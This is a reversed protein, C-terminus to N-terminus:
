PPPARRLGKVLQDEEFDFSARDPFMKRLEANRPGLDHVVLVPVSEPDAYNFVESVHQAVRPSYQIFVIARQSPLTRLQAAFARDFAARVRHDAKWKAVVPVSFAAVVLTTVALATRAAADTAALRRAVAGAGIAALVSAVPVAEMYYITWPAWHAYPLHAALLILGSLAGFRVAGGCAFLGVLALAALPLREVQFVAIVVQVVRDWATRPLAALSQQKRASLFYEYTSRLAPSLPRRPPSTDPTFGMKDFPLYDLRYKEIPSVRWDGTTKASWLPLIALVGIGIAMAGALDRWRGHRATDRIVVVGIPIAFALATLPRTIAAWGIALAMWYLWKARRDERWNLLLWWAILVLPTTTVESFYSPQFRLVLPATLWVLWTLLGRWVDTLRTALLFVLAGTLGALLLPVLAHWGILAGLSLLLAHGPPYKSAVAPVVQVHPQEFFEPIPPSPVTWRLRAFIDAQLLYSNEDHVKPVPAIGDWTFWVVVITLLALALPGRRRIPTEWATMRDGLGSAVTARAFALAAFVALFSLAVLM